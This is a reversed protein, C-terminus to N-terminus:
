KSRKMYIIEYTKRRQGRRSIRVQNLMWKLGVASLCEEEASVRELNFLGELVTRAEPWHKMDWKNFVEGHSRANPHNNILTEVWGSGSRRMSMLIFPAVPTCSCPGRNHSSPSPYSFGIPPESDLHPVELPPCTSPGQPGKPKPNTQQATENGNAARSSAADVEFLDGRRILSNQEPSAAKAVESTAPKENSAPSISALNDRHPQRAAPDEKVAGTGKLAFGEERLGTENSALVAKRLVKENSALGDELQATVDSSLDGQLITGGPAVVHQLLLKATASSEDRAIKEFADLTARAHKLVELSDNDGQPANMDFYLREFGHAFGAFSNSKKKTLATLLM